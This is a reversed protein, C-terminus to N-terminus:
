EICMALWWGAEVWGAPQWGALRGALWMCLWGALWRDRAGIFVVFVTSCFEVGNYLYECFFM